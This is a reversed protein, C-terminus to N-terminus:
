QEGPRALLLILRGLLHVREAAVADFACSFTSSWALSTWPAWFSRFLSVDLSWASTLLCCPSSLEALGVEGRRAVVVALGGLMRQGLEVVVDALELRPAVRRGLVGDGPQAGLAVLQRRLNLAIPL